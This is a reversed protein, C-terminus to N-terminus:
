KKRSLIRNLSEASVGFYKTAKGKIEKISVSREYSTLDAPLAAVEHDYFSRILKEMQRTNGATLEKVKGEAESLDTNLRAIETKLSDVNVSDNPVSAAYANALGISDVYYQRLSDVLRSVEAQPMMGPQTEPHVQHSYLARFYAVSALVVVLLFIAIYKVARM